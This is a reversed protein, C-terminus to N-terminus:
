RIDVNSFPTTKMFEELEREKNNQVIERDFLEVIINEVDSDENL